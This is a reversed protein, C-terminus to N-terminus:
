DGKCLNFLKQLIDLELLPKAGFGMGKRVGKLAMFVSHEDDNM